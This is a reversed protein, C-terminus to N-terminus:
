PIFVIWVVGYIPDLTNHPQGGGASAVTIAPTAASTKGVSPAASTGNLGYGLNGGTSHSEQVPSNSTLAADSGIGVTVHTHAAQTATHPHSPIQNVTLTDTYVGKKSGQTISYGANAIVSPDVAADLTGGVVGTNAGAVGRGRLDKTGNNGNAIYVKDYGVAAIGKGSSDFVTLPGDYAMYVYKPMKTNEPIVVGTNVVDELCANVMDCLESSKVYDDFIVDVTDSVTCVKTATAKIVDDRTPATPLTLCPANISFPANLRTNIEAIATEVVCANTTLAQLLTAATPAEGDLLTTITSCSIFDEITIGTGNLASILKEFIKSEVDALTNGECIELEPVDAGTYELCLDTIRTPCNRFCDVCSNSM